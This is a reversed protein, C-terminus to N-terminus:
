NYLTKPGQQVAATPQAALKAKLLEMQKIYLEEAAKQQHYVRQALLASILATAFTHVTMGVAIAAALVLFSTM